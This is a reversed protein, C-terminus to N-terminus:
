LILFDKIRGQFIESKEMRPPLSSSEGTGTSPKSTQSVIEIPFGDGLVSIRRFM